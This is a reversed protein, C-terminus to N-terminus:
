KNEAYKKGQLKLKSTPKEILYHVIMAWIVSLIFSVALTLFMTKHFSWNYQSFLKIVSLIIPSHFLYIGFSILGIFSVLNCTNKFFVNKIPASFLDNVDFSYLLIFSVIMIITPTYLRTLNVYKGFSWSNWMWYTNLIIFCVFLLLSFPRLFHKTKSDKSSNVFHAFVFSGFFLDINAAVNCLIFCDWSVGNKYWFVRLYLFLTMLFSLIFLYIINKYRLKQLPKIIFKWVLPTLLYLQVITSIFWLVGIMTTTYPNRLTFSFTRLLTESGNFYQNTNVFCIDILVIFFYVPLIRVCRNFYFEFFDNINDTKYRGQFFNKGLLYGSLIFFIWVGTWAPTCLFVPMAKMPINLVSTYIYSFHLVFVMLCAFCRLFSIINM